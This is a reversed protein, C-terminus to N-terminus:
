RRVSFLSQIVDFKVGKGIIVEEMGNSPIARISTTSTDDGDSFNSLLSAASVDV